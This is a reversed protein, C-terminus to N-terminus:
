RAGRLVGEEDDDTPLPHHPHYLGASGAGGGAATAAGGTAMQPFLVLLALPLLLAASWAPLRIFSSYVPKSGALQLFTSKEQLGSQQQTLIPHPFRQQQTTTM